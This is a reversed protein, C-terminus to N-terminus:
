LYSVIDDFLVGTGYRVARGSTMGRQRKGDDGVTKAKTPIGAMTALEANQGRKKALIAAALAVSHFHAM